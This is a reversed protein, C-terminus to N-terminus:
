KYRYNNTSDIGSFFNDPIMKNSSMDKIVIFNVSTHM